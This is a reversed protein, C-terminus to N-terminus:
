VISNGFNNFVKKPRNRGPGSSGYVPKGCKQGYPYKKQKGIDRQKVARYNRPPYTGPHDIVPCEPVKNFASYVRGPVTGPNEDEKGPHLAFYADNRVLSYALFDILLM